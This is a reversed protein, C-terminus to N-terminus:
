LDEKPPLEQELEVTCLIIENRTSSLHLGYDVRDRWRTILQRVRKGSAYHARLKALLVDKPVPQLGMAACIDQQWGICADKWTKDVMNKMEEQLDKIQAQLEKIEQARGYKIGENYAKSWVVDSSPATLHIAPVSSLIPKICKECNCYRGHFDSRGGGYGDDSWSM